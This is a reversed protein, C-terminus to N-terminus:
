TEILRVWSKSTKEWAWPPITGALCKTGVCVWAFNERRPIPSSLDFFINSSIKREKTVFNTCAEDQRLLKVKARCFSLLTSSMISALKLSPASAARCVSVLHLRQTRLQSVQVLPDLQCLTEFHKEIEERTKKFLHQWRVTTKLYILLVDRFLCSLRLNLKSFESVNFQTWALQKQM